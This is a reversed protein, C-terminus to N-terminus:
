RANATPKQMTAIELQTREIEKSLRSLWFYLWMQIVLSIFVFILHIIEEVSLALTRFWLALISLAGIDALLAIIIFPMALYLREKYMSNSRNKNLVGNWKAVFNDWILERDSEPQYRIIMDLILANSFAAARMIRIEGAGMIFVFSMSIFALALLILSLFIVDTLKLYVYVTPVGVLLASLFATGIKIVDYQIFISKQIEDRAASYQRLLLDSEPLHDTM